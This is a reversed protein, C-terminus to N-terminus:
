CRPPPKLSLRFLNNFALAKVGLNRGECSGRDVFNLNRGECSRRTPNLIWTVAKNLPEKSYNSLKTPFLLTPSACANPGFVLCHLLISAILNDSAISHPPRASPCFRLSYLRRGQPSRQVFFDFRRVASQHRSRQRGETLSTVLHYGNPSTRWPRPLHTRPRRRGGLCVILMCTLRLPCRQTGVRRSVVVPNQGTQLAVSAHFHRLARSNVVPHGVRKGLSTLVGTVRRNDMWGGLDNPFVLGIDWYHGPMMEEIEAIHVAQLERHKRLIEVTRADLDVRRQGFATKPTSAVFGVRRRGVSARVILYADDRNVSAWTLALVEGVRMGTYAVLHMAAFQPHQEEEALRLLARATEVSPPIIESPKAAPPSVLSVPSRFVMEMQLADRYAGSLVTHVLEVTRPSLGDAVLNAEVERVQAPRLEALPVHGLNPVLHRRIICEYPEITAQTWRNSITRETHWRQLWDRLLIREPPVIGRDM